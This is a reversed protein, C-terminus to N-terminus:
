KRGSFYEIPRKGYKKKFLRSFYDPKEFGVAFSAEAVTNVVGREILGKAKELKLDRLFHNPTKGTLKKVRRNLQRVSLNGSEALFSVSDLKKEIADKATNTLDRLWIKEAPSITEIVQSEPKPVESQYDVIKGKKEEEQENIVETESYVESLIVDKEAKRSKERSFFYYAFGIIFISASFLLFIMQSTLISQGPNNVVFYLVESAIAGDTYEAQICLTNVGIPLQTFSISGVTTEANARETGKWWYRFKYKLKPEFDLIVPYIRLSDTQEKAFFSTGPYYKTEGKTTISALVLPKDTDKITREEIVAQPQFVVGGNLSGFIIQGDPLTCYAIRNFEDHPLGDEKGYTEIQLSQKDLRNIGLNTSLWLNGAEDETLANIVNHSLGQRTTLQQFESNSPNFRILGSGLTSLWLIGERDIHIHSINDGPLYGPEPQGSFWHKTVGKGEIYQYLGSGKTGIWITDEKRALHYVLQYKLDEFQNYDDFPVILKKKKDFLSLGKEGGLMIQGDAKELLAWHSTRYKLNNGAINGQYSYFQRQNTKLNYKEIFPGVGCTWLNDGTKITSHGTALRGPNLREIIEENELDYFFRGSYTNCFLGKETDIMGRMSIPPETKEMFANFASLHFNYHIIGDVTIVWIGGNRDPIIRSKKIKSRMGSLAEPLVIVKNKDLDLARIDYTDGDIGLLISNGQCYIWKFRSHNRLATPLNVPSLEIKDETIEGKFVASEAIDKKRVKKQLYFVAKSDSGIFKLDSDLGSVSTESYNKDLLILQKRKTFVLYSDGVIKFDSIKDSDSVSYIKRVKDKTKLYINGELTCIFINGEENASVLVIAEDNELMFPKVQQLGPDFIYPHKKNGNKSGRRETLWLAGSSDESISAISPLNVKLDSLSYNVFEKGDFRSLGIEGAIWIFGKRDQYVTNIIREQMGEEVSYHRYDILLDEIQAVAEKGTNVWVVLTLLFLHIARM